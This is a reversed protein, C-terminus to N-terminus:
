RMYLVRRTEVGGRHQLRAIYVGGAVASGREDRGDWYAQYMGPAPVQDAVSRLTRGQLDCIQLRVPGPTTLRWAIHTTTNSPEAPRPDEAQSRGSPMALFLVVVGAAWSVPPRRGRGARM